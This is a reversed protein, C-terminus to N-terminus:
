RAQPTDADSGTVTVPRGDSRATLRRSLGPAAEAAARQAVEDLFEQVTDTVPLLERLGVICTMGAADIM